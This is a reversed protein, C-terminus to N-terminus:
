RLMNIIDDPNVNMQKCMSKFAQEPNGNSSELIMKLQPNSNMQEQIYAKPNSIAKLKMAMQKLNNPLSLNQQNGNLQQFLKNM